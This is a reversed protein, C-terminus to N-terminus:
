PPVGTKFKKKSYRTFGRIPFDIEARAATPVQITEITVTGSHPLFSCGDRRLIANYGASIEQRDSTGQIEAADDVIIGLKFNSDAADYFGDVPTDAIPGKVVMSRRRVKVIASTKLCNRESEDM